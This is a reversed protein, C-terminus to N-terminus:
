FAFQLRVRPGPVESRIDSIHSLVTCTSHCKKEPESFYLCHYYLCDTSLMYRLVFFCSQIDMHFQLAMVTRCEPMSPDAWFMNKLQYVLNTLEQETLARGQAQVRANMEDLTAQIFEHMSNSVINTITNNFITTIIGVFINTMWDVLINGRFRINLNSDHLFPFLLAFPFIFLKWELALDFRVLYVVFGWICRISFDWVPFSHPRTYLSPFRVM